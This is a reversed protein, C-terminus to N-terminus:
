KELLDKIAGVYYSKWGDAFSDEEGTPLDTHVLDIETEDGKDTFTFTVVSPKDWDGGYWSQVLKIRDVVEMNKGFIGGGWLSFNTGVKNDMKAPGAGWKDIIEPDVFAQWVKSVSAKITYHQEIVKM